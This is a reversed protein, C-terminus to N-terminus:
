FYQVAEEFRSSYKSKRYFYMRFPCFSQFLSLSLSVQLTQAALLLVARQATDGPLLFERRKLLYRLPISNTPLNSLSYPYPPHQHSLVQILLPKSVNGSLSSSKMGEESSNADSPSHPMLPSNFELASKKSPLFM